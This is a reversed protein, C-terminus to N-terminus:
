RGFDAMRVAATFEQGLRLVVVSEAFAHLYACRCGVRMILIRKCFPLIAGQIFSNRRDHVVSASGRSHPSESIRVDYERM